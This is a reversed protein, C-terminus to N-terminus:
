PNSTVIIRRKGNVFVPIQYSANATGVVVINDKVSEESKWKEVDSLRNELATVKQQLEEINM